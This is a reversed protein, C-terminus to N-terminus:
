VHGEFNNLPTSHSSLAVYLGHCVLGFFSVFFLGVPLVCAKRASQSHKAMMQHLGGTLRAVHHPFRAAPTAGVCHSASCLWQFAGAMSLSFLPRAGLKSSCVILAM